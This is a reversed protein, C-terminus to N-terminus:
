RHHLPESRSFLLRLTRAPHRLDDQIAPWGITRLHWGLTAFLLVAAIPLTAGFRIGPVVVPVLLAFAAILNRIARKDPVLLLILLHRPVNMKMALFMGVPVLAWGIRDEADFGVKAEVYCLMASFLGGFVIGSILGSRGGKLEEHFFFIYTYNPWIFYPAILGAVLVGVCILASRRSMGPLHRVYYLPSLKMNIAVAMLTHSVSSGSRAALLAAMIVVLMVLYSGDQVAVFRTGFYAFNLYLIPFVYWRTQLFYWASTGIFLLACLLIMGYLDIGLRQGVAYLGAEALLVTPLYPASAPKSWTEAELATQALKEKTYMDHPDNLIVKAEYTDAITDTGFTAPQRIGHLAGTTSFDVWTQSVNPLAQWLMAVVTLAIAAWRVTTPQAMLAADLRTLM